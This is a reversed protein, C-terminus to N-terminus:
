RQYLVRRRGPVGIAVLFMVSKGEAHPSFFETVADDYFTLGTAGLGLAYAALYLRGGFIAGALQAVRYGRSGYRELIPGLRALLYVNASADAALEQELDLFGAENRVDGTRLPELARAAPHFACAGPALGSVDNVIVYPDVVPADRPMSDSSVGRAAETLMTSLDAAAIPGREFRRASGRKRIVREISAVRREGGSGPPLEVLKPAGRHETGVPPGSERWARAEEGNGLSSGKQMERIAPYDVEKGSLPM